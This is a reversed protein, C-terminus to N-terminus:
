LEFHPWNDEDRGIFRYNGYELLTCIAIHILEM